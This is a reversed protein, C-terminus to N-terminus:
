NNERVYNERIPRHRCTCTHPYECRPTIMSGVKREHRIHVGDIKEQDALHKCGECIM